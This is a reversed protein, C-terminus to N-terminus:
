QAVHLWPVPEDSSPARALLLRTVRPDQAAAPHGGRGLWATELPKM